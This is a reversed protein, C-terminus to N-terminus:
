SGARAFDSWRIEARRGFKTMSASARGVPDAGGPSGTASRVDIDFEMALHTVRALGFAIRMERTLGVELRRIAGTSRDIQVRAAITEFPVFISADERLPVDLTVSDADEERVRVGEFDIYHLPDSLRKRPKSNKRADFDRREGATPARGDISVLQWRSSDPRTPDFREVREESVQDGRFERVHQTFTWRDFDSRWRAVARTLLERSADARAIPAAALLALLLPLLRRLM